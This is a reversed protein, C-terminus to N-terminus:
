VIWIRQMPWRSHREYTADACNLMMCGSLDIVDALKLV